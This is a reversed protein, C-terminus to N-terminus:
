SFLSLKQLKPIVVFWICVSEGHRDGFVFNHFNETHRIIEAMNIVSKDLNVSEGRLPVLRLPLVVPVARQGIGLYDGNHYQEVQTSIFAQFVKVQVFGAVIHGVQEWLGNGVIAEDFQLSLNGHWEDQEHLLAAHSAAGSDAEHITGGQTNASVLADMQVLDEFSKGLPSLARHTPEITEFQVQDTVLFAIQQVEHKRGAIDVVPLREPVLGKDLLDEAFQDTVLSVDALIEEGLEKHLTNLQNCFQLAVHFTLDHGNSVAEKEALPRQNLGDVVLQLVHGLNLVRPVPRDDAKRDVEHSTQRGVREKRLFRHDIHVSDRRIFIPKDM